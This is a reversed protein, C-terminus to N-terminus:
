RAEEVWWVLLSGCGKPQGLQQVMRRALAQNQAPRLPGGPTIDLALAAVGEDTLEQWAGEPLALAQESRRLRRWWGHIKLGEKWQRFALPQQARPPIGLENALPAGSARFILGMSAPGDGEMEQPLVLVPGHTAALVRWSAFASVDRSPLPANASLLLNELLLAGAFLAPRPARAALPLLALPVIVGWRLPWHLRALARSTEALLYGPLPILWRGLQLPEGAVQLLPGMLLLGGALAALWWPWAPLEDDRRRLCWAGWCAAALLALSLRNSTQAPQALFPWAPGSGHLFAWAHQSPVGLAQQGPIFSLGGGALEPAARLVLLLPGVCCAGALVAGLVLRGLLAGRGQRARWSAALVVPAALVTLFLGQYWYTLASLALFVGALAGQWARGRQDLARLLYALFLPAWCLLTQPAHSLGAERLVPECSAFAM